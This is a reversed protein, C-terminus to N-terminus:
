AFFIHYTSSSATQQALDEVDMKRISLSCKAHYQMVEILGKIDDMQILFGERGRADQVSNKGSKL